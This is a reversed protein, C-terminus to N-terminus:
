SLAHQYGELTAKASLEWTFNSLIHQRLEPNIPADYARIIADRISDIDSPDCYYAYNAFYDRTDGKETVVINCEMVAAEISSLGPTEMWSILAHVKALKYYQALLDHDIQGEFYVNDSAERKVQDYYKHHNPAPKGILVLKYPLSKMAKILNLQSKRGEIRAVCLVCDKYKILDDPVGTIGLDFCNIDVANPVIVFKKNCYLKFDSQVRKMESESNPLFVDVMSVIDNLSKIHGNTLYMLVGRHVERNTITRAVIKLYEIVSVPLLNSIFRSIGTRAFRDYENYTGYITSLVIKKNQMKANRAQILVDQPRMLNFLHVIDYGKLNPELDTSIDVNVGLKSLYEKTKVVQVTDGGPVTFLNTRSQFLVNM